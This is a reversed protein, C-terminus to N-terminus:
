FDQREAEYRKLAIPFIEKMYNPYTQENPIEDVLCIKEMESGDPIEGFSHIKAFYVQSNADIDTGRLDGTVRYDCLPEIDFSTAGTEEYLERKAAEFPTEGAEIHGGQTEWTDREKHKSFVWKGNNVAIIDAYRYNNLSGFDHAKFKLDM